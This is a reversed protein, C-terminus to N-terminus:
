VGTDVTRRLQQSKNLGAAALLSARLYAPDSRASSGRGASISTWKRDDRCLSRTQGPQLPSWVAAASDVEALRQWDSWEQTAPDLVSLEVAGNDNAYAFWQWLRPYVGEAGSVTPLTTPPAILRSDTHQPYYGDLV